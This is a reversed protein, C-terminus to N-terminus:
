SVLNEKGRDKYKPWGFEGDMADEVGLECREARPFDAFVGRGRADLLMAVLFNGVTDTLETDGCEQTTGDHRVVNVTQGECAAQVAPLWDERPLTAFDPHTPDGDPECGPKTDFNLHVWPTSVSDGLSFTLEIRTVPPNREGTGTAGNKVGYERVADAVMAQVERADKGLDIGVM